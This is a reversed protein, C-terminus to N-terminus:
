KDWLAGHRIERGDVTEDGNLCRTARSVLDFALRAFQEATNLGAEACAQASVRLKGAEAEYQVDLYINHMESVPEHYTGALVAIATFGRECLQEAQRALATAFLITADNANAPFQKFCPAKTILDTAQEYARFLHARAAEVRKLDYEM